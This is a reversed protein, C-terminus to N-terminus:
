PQPLITWPTNTGIEGTLSLDTNLYQNSGVNKILWKDNNPQIEYQFGPNDSLLLGSFRVGEPSTELGGGIMPQIQYVNERVPVFKWFNSNTYDDESEKNLSVKSVVDRMPKKKNIWLNHGSANQLVYTKGSDLLSTFREPCGSFAFLIIVLILILFVLLAIYYSKPSWNKM